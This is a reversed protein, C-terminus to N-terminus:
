CDLSMVGSYERDFPLLMTVRMLWWVNYWDYQYQIPRLVVVSLASSRTQADLCVSDPLRQNSTVLGCDTLEPSFM